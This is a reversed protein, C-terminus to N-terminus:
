AQSMAGDNPKKGQRLRSVQTLVLEVACGPSGAKEWRKELLEVVKFLLASEPARSPEQRSAGTDGVANISSGHTRRYVIRTRESQLKARRVNLDAIEAPSALRRAMAEGEGEILALEAAIQTIREADGVPVQPPDRDQRTASDAKIAEWAIEARNFLASVEEVSLDMSQALATMDLTDQTALIEALLRPFQVEARQWPTREAHPQTEVTNSKKNM